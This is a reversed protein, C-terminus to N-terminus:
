LRTTLAHTRVALNIGVIEAKHVCLKNKHGMHKECHVAITKRYLVKWHFYVTNQTLYQM